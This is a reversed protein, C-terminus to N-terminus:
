VWLGGRGPSSDTVAAPYIKANVRKKTVIGAWFKWLTPALEAATPDGPGRLKGKKGGGKTRSDHVL